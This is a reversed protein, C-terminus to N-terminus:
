SIQFYYSFFAETGHFTLHTAVWSVLSDMTKNLRVLDLNHAYATSRGYNLQRKPSVGPDSSFWARM